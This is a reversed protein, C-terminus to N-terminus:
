KNSREIDRHELHVQTGTGQLIKAITEVVYVSRHRGGSCGLAITLYSKGEARYRPLLPTILLEFNKVFEDFAPDSQIYAGVSKDQGTLPKLTEDWHPNRLFRVDMVIDAERPLGYKYGFSLLTVTLDGATEIKFHGEIQARLDHVSLESTDIVVDAAERLPFLYSMEKKIGASVPRDKALPHRRRTETFRKQLVAEDACLFLLRAKLTKAKDIVSQVDFGRTRSDVGFAIPQDDQTEGLLTDIHSLPFNDLVEYGMDELNKMALTMGAGSLGTVLVVPNKTM